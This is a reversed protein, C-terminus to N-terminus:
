LEGNEEKSYREVLKKLVNDDVLDLKHVLHNLRDEIYQMHQNSNEIQLMQIIFSVISLLDLLEFDFNNNNKM